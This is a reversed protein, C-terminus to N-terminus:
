SYIKIKMEGLLSVNPFDDESAYVNIKDCLKQNKLFLYINEMEEEGIGDKKDEYYLTLVRENRNDTGLPKLIEASFISDSLEFLKKNVSLSKETLRVELNINRM